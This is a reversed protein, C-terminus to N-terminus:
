ELEEKENFPELFPNGTREKGITSTWGHGPIIDTDPDLWILKEMISVIEQDYDSYLLDTRGITGAFLTDGSFLVKEGQVLFCCSGPSHGPTHIVEFRLGATEIVQGDRMPEYRFDTDPIKLGLKEAIERNYDRLPDDAPHMHVPIGYERQLAAVGYIHDIHCHTLLIAEPHLGNGDLFDRCMQLDGDSYFGPDILVCSASGEEWCIVANERLFNVEFQKIKVM